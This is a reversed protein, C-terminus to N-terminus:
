KKNTNWDLFVEPQTVKSFPIKHEGWDDVLILSSESAGLLVEKLIGDWRKRPKAPAPMPLAETTEFRLRKGLAEQFHRASRLSPRDGPSSIELTYAVPIPDWLDLLPSLTEHVKVCDEIGIPGSGDRGEIYVRLTGQTGSAGLCDLDRLSYGLNELVPQIKEILEHELASKFM